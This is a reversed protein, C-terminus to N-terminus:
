PDYSREEEISGNGSQVIVRSPRATSAQTIAQEVARDKEEHSVVPRGDRTIQWAGSHHVVRFETRGDSDNTAM